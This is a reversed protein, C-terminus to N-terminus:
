RKDPPPLQKVLESFTVFEVGQKKLEAIVKPLTALTVTPWEHMLIVSGDVIGTTSLQFYKDPTTSAEWDLSGIFHYQNFPFHELGTARRVIADVREDHELFPSWFWAPAKGTAQKIAAQTDAVEKEIAADSLTKLHPHTYTHNIIEHGAAAAAKALKPFAVVNKGEHSFTVHVQERALLALMAANQKPDPGDDIVLALRKRAPTDAAHAIVGFTASCFLFWRALTLVNM